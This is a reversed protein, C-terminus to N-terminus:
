LWVAILFIMCPRGSATGSSASDSNRSKPYFFPRRHSPPRKCPSDGNKKQLPPRSSSKPLIANGEKDFDVGHAKYEEISLVKGTEDALKVASKKREVHEESLGLRGDAFVKWVRANKPIPSLCFADSAGTDRGADVIAGAGNKRVSVRLDGNADYADLSSESFDVKGGPYKNRFHAVYQKM